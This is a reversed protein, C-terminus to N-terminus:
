KMLGPLFLAIHPFALLLGICLFLDVLFFPTFGLFIEKLSLEPAAGKLVYAQIGVPPTILGIEVLKVVVVGFWVPDFGLEFVAPSIFPVTLLILGLADLFCGMILYVLIVGFMIFMRHIPLAVVWEAFVVPLRSLALFQILLYAGIVIFFISSTVRLTDLLADKFGARSLKRMGLALILVVFAGVAGAETPTFVGSLIGGAVCVFIIFIGVVDKLSVFREKWTYRDGKVADQPKAIAWVIVLLSFLVVSLIGPLVGAILLKGISQEVVIGYIVLLISPPILAALTGGMSCVGAALRPNYGFRKMEPLAMKGLVATSAISSGSCAGFAAAGLLTAIGLGGPLRGVWKFACSSADKALGAFFAFSGMLIFMPIVSLIWSASAGYPITFLANLGPKLGKLALIGAFGVSAMGVGIPVGLLLLGIFLAMGIGGILAPDLPIM